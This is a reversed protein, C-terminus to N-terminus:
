RLSYSKVKSIDVVVSNRLLRDNIRGDFKQAWEAPQINTTIVTFRKERRSLVQCLKDACIKWPDNEAGIDDVILLDSDMADPIISFNKENFQSAAEPWSIFLASPTQRSGWKGTEFAAFAMAGCFRYIAKATHSKGSGYNGVVVLLSKESDNHYWRTCFAETATALTQLDPHVVDLAIWKQQWKTKCPNM